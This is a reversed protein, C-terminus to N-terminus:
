KTDCSNRYVFFRNYLFELIFNLVMTVILVIYENIGISTSKNGLITSLPTFILYFIIVKIMAVSVNNTSKFTMERNITFNFLVSATLSILYSPWYSFINLENLLTFLGIQIIGAGISFFLFKLARFFEKMVRVLLM